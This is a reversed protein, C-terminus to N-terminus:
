RQILTINYHLCRLLTANPCALIHAISILVNTHAADVYQKSQLAWLAM